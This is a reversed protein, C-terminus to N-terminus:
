DPRITFDVETYSGYGCTECGVDHGGISVDINQTGFFTALAQLQAYNWSSAHTCIEIHTFMENVTATEGLLDLVFNHIERCSHAIMQEGIESYGCRDRRATPYNIRCAWHIHICHAGPYYTRM